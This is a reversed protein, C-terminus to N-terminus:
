FGRLRWRHVKKGTSARVMDAENLKELLGDDTLNTIARQASTYPAEPLARANVEERSFKEGPREAFFRLVADEQARAKRASHELELGEEHNTNYYYPRM